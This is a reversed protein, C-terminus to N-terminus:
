LREYAALSDTAIDLVLFRPEHYKFTSEINTTQRKAVTGGCVSVNKGSQDNPAV